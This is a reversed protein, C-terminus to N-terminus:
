PERRWEGTIGGFAGLFLNFGEMIGKAPRGKFVEGLITAFVTNFLIPYLWFNGRVATGALLAILILCVVGLVVIAIAEILVGMLLGGTADDAVVAPPCCAMLSQQRAAANASPVSVNM